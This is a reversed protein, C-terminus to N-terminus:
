HVRTAGTMEGTMKVTFLQLLRTIEDGPGGSGSGEFVTTPVKRKSYADAFVTAIEVQAKLRKDLAGDAAMVLQRRKAEGEGRLINAQKESGAAAQDEQAVQRRSQAALVAVDRAQEAATVARQKEVDAEAKAKAVAARGEAAATKENQAATEARAFASTAKMQADRVAGIQELIAEEYAFDDPFFLQTVEIGYSALTNAKRLPNGDADQRISVVRELTPQGTIPNLTEVETSTTLYIGNQLQDLSLQSLEAKGGSYSQESSMLAASLVVAERIAPKLLGNAVSAYSRFKNHIRLLAMEDLPVDFRASGSIKATGGDSFRVPISNGVLSESGSGSTEANDSFVYTGAQKYLTLSGLCQCFYGPDSIVSLTGSPFAQKVQVYGADNEEFAKGGLILAFVAIVAFFGGGIISRNM